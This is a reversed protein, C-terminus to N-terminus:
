VGQNAAASVAEAKQRRALVGGLYGMPIYALLLDTANFWAPGGVMYAASIGGLLYLAGIGLAFLMPRHVAIRAATFAGALTGVAHALFPFLFNVPKFLHMNAGISEMSAGDVGEPLPVLANGLFVIGMNVLSAVVIGALAALINRAIPNM